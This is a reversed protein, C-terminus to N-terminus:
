ANLDHAIPWPDLRYRTSLWIHRNRPLNLQLSFKDRILMDDANHDIVHTRALNERDLVAAQTFRLGTSRWLQLQSSTVFLYLRKGQLKQLDVATLPAVVSDIDAHAPDTNFRDRPGGYGELAVPLSGRLDQNGTSRFSATALRREIVSLIRRSFWIATLLTMAAVVFLSALGPSTDEALVRWFAFVAVMPGAALLAFIAGLLCLRGTRRSGDRGVEGTKRRERCFIVVPVIANCRGSSGGRDCSRPTADGSLCRSAVCCPNPPLPVAVHRAPLTQCTM